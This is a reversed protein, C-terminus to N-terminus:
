LSTKSYKTKLFQNCMLASSMVMVNQYFITFYKEFLAVPPQHQLKSISTFVEFM